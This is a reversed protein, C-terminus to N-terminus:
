ESLPKCAKPIGAMCTTLTQNEKFDLSRTAHESEANSKDGYTTEKLFVPPSGTM